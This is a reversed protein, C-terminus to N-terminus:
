KPKQMPIFCCRCGYAATARPHSALDTREPQDGCLTFSTIPLLFGDGLLEKLQSVVQLHSDSPARNISTEVESAADYPPSTPKNLRFALTSPRALVYNFNLIRTGVFYAHLTCTVCRRSPNAMLFQSNRISGLVLNSRWGSINFPPWAAPRDILLM